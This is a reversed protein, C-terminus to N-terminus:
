HVICNRTSTIIRERSYLKATAYCCLCMQKRLKEDAALRIIGEALAKANKPPCLLGNVGDKILEAVGGTRTAVVPKGCAFSELLSLPLGEFLSPLVVLDASALLTILHRRDLYGTFIVKDKKINRLLEAFVGANGSGTIICKCDVVRMVHNLAQLLYKVGKRPDSVRAVPALIIKEADNCGLKKRVQATEDDSRKYENLDIGNPIVHVINPDLGYSKILFRRTHHSVCIIADCSKIAMKEILAVFFSGERTPNLFTSFRPELLQSERVSHHVTVVRPHYKVPMLADGIYNTHIVDFPGHTWWASRIVHPLKLQFWLFNTLPFGPVSVRLITPDYVASNSFSIPSVVTVDEGTRKLWKAIQRAYEGGGGVVFPPYEFSILCIKL